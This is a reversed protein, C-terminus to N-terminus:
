AVSQVQLKARIGSLIRSIQMQSVGLEEGIRAQSWGDFFRHSIILRERDTLVSLLRRIEDQDDVRDLAPDDSALARDLAGGPTMSDWANWGGLARAARVTDVDLGAKEALEADEPERGLQQRVEPEVASLASRAEQLQRPPRVTWAHDRFHRKLEGSITPVAFQLFDECLGQQWRDVAKILGLAAVQELDAQDVGRHRYRAAISRAVPLCALVVQQGLEARRLDDTCEAREALLAAVRASRRARTRSRAKASADIGRAERVAAVSAPTATASARRVTSPLSPVARM